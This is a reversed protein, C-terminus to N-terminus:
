QDWIPGWEPDIVRNGRDIAEIAVMEESSLSLKTAAFNSRIHDPRGSTPIAILGKHMEFALAVQEVGAGHRMAIQELLPDGKLMGRAM